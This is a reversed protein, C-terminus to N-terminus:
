VMVESSGVPGDPQVHLELPERCHYCRSRITVPQALMAPIGLADIACVAYRERGDQLVVAFATPAGAFPDALKVWGDQVLIMDKDDLHAIAGDVSSADHEPLLARVVEIKLPGGNAIFHGLITRLALRPLGDLAQRERWKKAFEEDLLEEARKVEFSRGM